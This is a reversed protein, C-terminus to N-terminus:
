NLSLGPGWLNGTAGHHGRQRIHQRIEEFEEESIAGEERLWAFKRLEAEPQETPDLAGFHERLFTRKREALEAVIRDHQGDRIVFVRGRPTDYVTYTTQWWLYLGYTIAGLVLWFLSGVDGARLSGDLAGFGVSVVGLLLWLLGVNRFWTNKEVLEGTESPVAEYPVVFRHRGSPDEVEYLLREAEFDFTTTTANKQQRYPM